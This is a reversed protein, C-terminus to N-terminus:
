HQIKAANVGTADKVLYASQQTITTPDITVPFAREEDKLWEKDPTLTLQFGKKTETLEVTVANSMVGNADYMFPADITYIIEGSNTDTLEITDEETMKYSLKKLDYEFIFTDPADTSNLVIDEKIKASSVTYKLDTDKLINEYIVSGNLNKLKTPKSEDNDAQIIKANVKDSGILSWNLQTSNQKLSVLKNSKAKKAFEIKFSNGKNKFVNNGDDDSASSLSNDIDKWKGDDEYHVPQLYTASMYSGDSLRFVKTYADRKETVETVIEADNSLPPTQATQNVQETQKQSSVTSDSAYVTMPICSLLLTLSLVCAIIKPYLKKMSMNREKKNLFVPQKEQKLKVMNKRYKCGNKPLFCCSDKFILDTYYEFCSVFYCSGLLM